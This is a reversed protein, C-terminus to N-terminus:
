MVPGHRHFLPLPAPEDESSLPKHSARGFSPSGALLIAIRNKMEQIHSIEGLVNDNWHPGTPVNFGFFPAHV